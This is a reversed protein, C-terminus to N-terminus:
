KSGKAEARPHGQPSGGSSRCRGAQRRAQWFLFAAAGFFILSVGFWAKGAPGPAPPTPQAQGGSLHRDEVAVEFNLRHGMEDSIVLRWRGSRDPAFAFRGNRDTHGTQFPTDGEPAYVSVRAYSMAEGGQYTAAVVVGGGEQRGEVGHALVGATLLGQLVPLAALVLRFM